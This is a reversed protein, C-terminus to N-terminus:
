KYLRDEHHIYEEGNITLRRNGGLSERYEDSYNCNMCISEWTEYWRLLIRRDDRTIFTETAYGNMVEIVGVAESVTEGIKVDYVGTTYRFFPKELLIKEGDYQAPRERIVLPNGRVPDEANVMRNYGEDLFTHLVLTDEYTTEHEPIYDDGYMFGLYRLYEDTMQVFSTQANRTYYDMKPSYMDECVKVGDADHICCLREARFHSVLTLKKAPYRYTGEYSRNGVEPVIVGIDKVEFFPTDKKTIVLEPLEPSFGATYDITKEKMNMISGKKEYMSRIHPPCAARFRERAYHLRSKVTGVPIGLRAAIDAQSQEEVYYLVLITRADDPLAALIDQAIGSRTGTKEAIEGVADLPIVDTRYKRRYYMRCENKAITLLWAKFSAPDRLSSFKRFAALFTNQVVDDADASCPMKYHIYREVPERYQELLSEFRVTEM